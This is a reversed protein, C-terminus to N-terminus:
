SSKGRNMVWAILGIILGIIAGGVAKAGVKGWDIGTVASPLAEKLSSQVDPPNAAIIANSWQKSIDRSWELGSEEAYSYLFLVKGKVHVFTATVVTVYPTQNGHEDNVAYKVFASYALTRDTEKHPSLPVMQSMSLALDVGLQKTVGENAQKMLGPMEKEVEKSLEDNQSKIINKLKLFDSSSVSLGVLTTATQVAFTRGLDPVENKLANPVESAPIFAVFQENTPAIFQQQLKYVTSMQPTIAAFDTPNPIDLATGGVNIPISWGLTPILLLIAALYIKM